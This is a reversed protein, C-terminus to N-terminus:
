VGCRFARARETRCSFKDGRNITSLSEGAPGPSAKRRCAINRTGITSIGRRKAESRGRREDILLLSAHQEEALQIAEREGRDLVKLADDDRPRVLRVDIWLPLRFVWAAVSTPASPHKLEEMVGIPILVNTYLDRILNDCEIQILYNLPSADAVVIM